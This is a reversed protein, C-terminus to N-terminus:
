HACPTVPSVGSRVTKAKVKRTLRLTRPPQPLVSGQAICGLELLQQKLRLYKRTTDPAPPSWAPSQDDFPYGLARPRETVLEMNARVRRMTTIAVAM